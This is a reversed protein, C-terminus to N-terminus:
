LACPLEALDRNSTYGANPMFDHMLQAIRPLGDLRFSNIAPPKTTLAQDLAQFLQQPTLQQPHITYLLGQDAFRKARIWQEKVPQTRPVVVAPKRLSLIECTTNYGAMAVVADAANLYSILDDSFELLQINPYAVAQTQLQQRQDAPMEPGSIIVTKPVPQAALTRQRISELYTQILQYGDGGGGPTVVVLSEDPHIGLQQRLVNRPTRGSNRSLYGCFRVKRRLPLSFNYEDPLNFIEPTGVVWVQDYHKQTIHYYNNKQWQQITATPTDLIDRLLLVRKTNPGYLSLYALTEKLENRLGQPKKDVLLVDPQFHVAATLILHSRLRVLTDPMKKLYKAELQGKADRGLCPLKIYDLGEPLRLTHLAPSGSVVLISVDPLTRLLYECITLMRRINGLGFADHSYVMLKM